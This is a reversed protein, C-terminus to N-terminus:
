SNKINCIVPVPWSTIQECIEIGVEGRQDETEVPEEGGWTEVLDVGTM